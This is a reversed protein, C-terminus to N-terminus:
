SAPKEPNTQFISTAVSSSSVIKATTPRAEPATSSSVAQDDPSPQVRVPVRALVVTGGGVGSEIVVTGNVLKLREQMSILGLGQGKRVADTTFGRGDDAIRLSVADASGRLVVSCHRAAAHKLTNSLAEQLVRFLSIAVGDPLRSPVDEDVYEVQLDHRNSVDRCFSRAAGALGLRDINSSHLRHSIGQVDRGLAVVSDYLSQAQAQADSASASITARLRALDMALFSMRQSVDDHLERAVRTREQEQAEMLSRSLNSLSGRAVDLDAVNERLLQEVRRRKTSSILLAGILFSQATLVLTGGVIVWKFRDWVGPARFRVVSGPPLRSEDIHWRQLERWDFVAPGTKQPAVRVQSPPQGDLLRIAADAANGAMREVDMVSGGVIGHGIEPSLAGFLPANAADHIEALVRDEAFVGGQGDTGFTLFYVASDPPLIAVRHLIEAFSMEDSWVFGVRGKFRAFDREMEARWFRGLPGSGMVMFVTKTQPFLRLMDDVIAAMDNDSAVATEHDGLPAAGVFRTSVATLLLPSDPFLQRAYKRAFVTAPGGITVVLDPKPQGAFASALYDVIPKEPSIAFGSPNVVAQMFSVRTASRQEVDIRFKGTFGDMTLNGRDLSQLLLVHRVQAQAPASCALLLVFLAACSRRRTKM